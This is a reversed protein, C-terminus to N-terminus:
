SNDSYLFSYSFWDSSVQLTQFAGLREHAYLRSWARWYLPLDSRLRDKLATALERKPNPGLRKLHYNWVYDFDYKSLEAYADCRHKEPHSGVTPSGLICTNPGLSRVPYGHTPQHTALCRHTGWGPPYTRLRSPERWSYLFHQEESYRYRAANRAPPPMYQALEEDSVSKGNVLKLKHTIHYKQYVDRQVATRQLTDIGSSKKRIADINLEHAKM